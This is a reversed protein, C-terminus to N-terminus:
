FLKPFFRRPVQKRYARYADGYQDILEIEEFHIIAMFGICYPIVFVLAYFSDLMLALGLAMLGNSFYLPHRVRAYIGDTVLTGKAKLGPVKGIKRQGAIKVWVNLAFILGGLGLALPLPLGIPPGEAFPLVIPPLIVAVMIFLMVVKRPVAQYVWRRLRGIGLFTLIVTLGGAYVAVWVLPDTLIQLVTL